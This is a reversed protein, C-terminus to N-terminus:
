ATAMGEICEYVFSVFLQLLFVVSKETIIPLLTRGVLTKLRQIFNMEDSSDALLIPVYSPPSPVGVYEAVIDMLQGSNLWIWAPINAARILGIPCFEYMHSFAIDFQAAKLREMFETNLLTLECARIFASMMTSFTERIDSEFVSYDQFKSQLFTFLVFISNSIVPRNCRN